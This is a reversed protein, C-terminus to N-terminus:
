PESWEGRNNIKFLLHFIFIVKVSLLFFSAADCLFATIFCSLDGASMLFLHTGSALTPAGDRISALVAATANYTISFASASLMQLTDLGFITRLEVCLGTNKHYIYKSM